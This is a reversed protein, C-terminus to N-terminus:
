RVLVMKRTLIEADARLRYFYVGSSVAKGADNTGNWIVAHNGTYSGERLEGNVLTRVLRGRADYVSLEVTTRSPLEFEIATRPNFPNPVNQLLNLRAPTATPAADDIGVFQTCRDWYALDLVIPNVDSFLTDNLFVNRNGQDFCEFNFLTDNLGKWLYKYDFNKLSGTPFTLRTTFIGDDAASDPLVGDDALFNAPPNNWNLPLISGDIGITDVTSDWQYASVNQAFFIVDIDKDTFNTPALDDWWIALTDSAASMDLTYTHNGTSEWEICQHTFKYELSVTDSISTAVDCDTAITFTYEYTSDGDPDAMLDDCTPDWTLPSISGEVAFTDAIPDYSDGQLHISMQGRILLDTLYFSAVNTLNNDDIVNSALDQVNVVEVDVCTGTAPVADTTLSVSSTSVLSAGTVNVGSVTYNGATEATLTDVPESFSLTLPTAADYEYTYGSVTPPTTDGGSQEAVETSNSLVAATSWDTANWDDATDNSTDQANDGTGGGTTWVECWLNSPNGLRSKAIKWEIGSTVGASMAADDAGGSQTWSTTGQTWFYFQGDEPGFPQADMWCNLSFEPKHNDSVTVNRGWADLTAGDLDNTTDIYLVYKGWVTSALNANVTVLFYWYTNDNCVYLNLLDINTNGAWHDGAPDIAEAAGYVGDLVGDVTPTGFGEAQVTGAMLPLVFLAVLLTLTRKM